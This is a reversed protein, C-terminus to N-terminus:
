SVHGPGPQLRRVQLFYHEVTKVHDFGLQEALEVLSLSEEFYDAADKDDPGVTPFFNIGFQM